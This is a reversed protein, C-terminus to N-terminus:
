EGGTGDLVNYLSSLEGNKEIWFTVYVNGGNMDNNITGKVRLAHQLYM